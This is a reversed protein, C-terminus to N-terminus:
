VIAHLPLRITVACGKSDPSEVKMDGGHAEVIRLAGSLGLGTGEIATVNDARYFREFIRPLADQPIGIGEDRIVVTIHNPRDTADPAMSVTITGGHPSYKIANRLLNDFAHLLLAEDGPGIMSVHDTEVVLHHTTAVRRSDEVAQTITRIFDVSGVELLASPSSNRATAMFHNIEAVAKSVAQTVVVLDDRLRAESFPLARDLRRTISQAM